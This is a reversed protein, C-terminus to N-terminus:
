AFDVVERFDEWAQDGIESRVTEELAQREEPSMQAVTAQARPTGRVEADATRAARTVIKQADRRLQSLSKM